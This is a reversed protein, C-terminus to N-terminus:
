PQYTGFVIPTLIDNCFELNLSLKQPYPHWMDRDGGVESWIGEGRGWVM